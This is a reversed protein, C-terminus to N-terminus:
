AVAPALESSSKDSNGGDEGGDDELRGMSPFHVRRQRKLLVGRLKPSEELIELLFNQLRTSRAIIDSAVPRLTPDLSLMSVVLGPLDASNVSLSRPDAVEFCRVRTDAVLSWAVEEPSSDEQSAIGLEALPALTLMELLICGLSFVDTLESYRCERAMEPSSYANIGNLTAAFDTLASFGSVMSSNESLTSGVASATDDDHEMSGVSGLSNMSRSKSYASKRHLPRSIGLGAIKCRQYDETLWVNQPKIDRHVFGAAHIAAVGSVMHAFWRRADQKQISIVKDERFKTLVGELTNPLWETVLCAKSFDNQLWCDSLKIVVPSAWSIKRLAEAERSIAKLHQPFDRECMMAALSLEKIAVREGNANLAACTSGRCGEQGLEELKRYSGKATLSGSDLSEFRWPSKFFLPALAKTCPDALAGSGAELHRQADRNTMSFAPGQDQLGGVQGLSAGQLRLTTLDSTCHAPALVPEPEPAKIVKEEETIRLACICTGPGVTAEGKPQSQDLIQIVSEASLRCPVTYTELKVRKSDPRTFWAANLGSRRQGGFISTFTKGLLESGDLGSNTGLCVDVGENAGVITDGDNLILFGDAMISLLFSLTGVVSRTLEDSRSTSARDLGVKFLLGHFALLGLIQQLDHRFRFCAVLLHLLLSLQSPPSFDESFGVLLMPLLVLTTFNMLVENEPSIRSTCIYYGVMCGAMTVYERLQLRSKLLQYNAADLWYEFLIVLLSHFALYMILPKYPELAEFQISLLCVQVSVVPLLVTRNSLLMQRLKYQAIDEQEKRSKM